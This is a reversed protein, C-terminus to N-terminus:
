RAPAVLAVRERRICRFNVLAFVVPERFMWLLPLEVTQSACDRLLLRRFKGLSTIVEDEDLSSRIEIVCESKISGEVRHAEM